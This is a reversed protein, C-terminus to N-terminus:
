QCSPPRSWGELKDLNRETLRFERSWIPTTFHFGAWDFLTVDFSECFPCIGIEAWAYFRGSLMSTNLVLSSKLDLSDSTNNSHGPNTSRLGITSDFRPGITFLELEVGLGVGAIGIDVGGEVYLRASASASALLSVASPGSAGVTQAKWEGKVGYRVSVPIPGVAFYFKGHIDGLPGKDNKQASWPVDIGVVKLTAGAYGDNSGHAGGASSSLGLFPQPFGLVTGELDFTAELNSQDTKANKSWLFSKTMSAGFTGNGVEFSKTHLETMTPSDSCPPIFATAVAFAVENMQDTRAFFGEFSDISSLYNTTGYFLPYKGAGGTNQTNGCLWNNGGQNTCMCIDFQSTLVGGLELSNNLPCKFEFHNNLKSFDLGRTYSECKRKDAEPGALPFDQGPAKAPLALLDTETVNTFLDTFMEPLWECLVSHTPVDLTLCTAILSAGSRADAATFFTELLEDLSKLRAEVDAATLSAYINKVAEFDRAYQAKLFSREEATISELSPELVGTSLNLWWADHEVATSPERVLTAASLLGVDHGALKAAVELQARRVVLELFQNRRLRFWKEDTPTVQQNEYKQLMSAHWSWSMSVQAVARANQPETPTTRAALVPDTFLFRHRHDQPSSPQAHRTAMTLFEDFPNAARTRTDWLVFSKNPAVSYQSPVYARSMPGNLLALRGLNGRLDNSFAARVRLIAPTRALDGLEPLMRMQFVAWDYYKNLVYNTCSGLGAIELETSKFPNLFQETPTYRKDALTPATGDGACVQNFNFFALTRNGPKAIATPLSASTPMTAQQSFTVLGMSQEQWTPNTRLELRDTLGELLPKGVPTTLSPRPPIIVKSCALGLLNPNIYGSSQLYTPYLSMTIKHCTAPKDGGSAPCDSAGMCPKWYDNCAGAGFTDQEKEFLDYCANILLDACLPAMTKAENVVWEKALCRDTTVSPFDPCPDPIGDPFNDPPKPGCSALLLAAAFSAVAAYRAM